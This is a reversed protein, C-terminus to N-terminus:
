EMTNLTTGQAWQAGVLAAAAAVDLQKAKLTVNPEQCEFNGFCGPFAKNMTTSFSFFFFFFSLSFFCAKNKRRSGGQREPQPLIFLSSREWGPEPHLLAASPHLLVSPPM